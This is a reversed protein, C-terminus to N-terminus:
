SFTSRQLKISGGKKVGGTLVLCEERTIVNNFPQIEKLPLFLTDWPTYNYFSLIVVDKEVLNCLESKELHKEKLSGLYAVKSPQITECHM